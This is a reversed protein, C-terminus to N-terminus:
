GVRRVEAEADEARHKLLLVQLRRLASRTGALRQEAQLRRRKEEALAAETQKLRVVADTTRM